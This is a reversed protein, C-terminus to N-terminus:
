RDFRWMERGFRFVCDKKEHGARRTLEIKEIGLRPQLLPMSFRQRRAHRFVQLEGEYFRSCGDHCARPLELRVAFAAHFNGIIQRVCSRAGVVDAQYAGGPRFSEIM